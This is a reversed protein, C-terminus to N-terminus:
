VFPLLTTEGVEGFPCRVMGVLKCQESVGGTTVSVITLQSVVEPRHFLEQCIHAVNKDYSISLTRFPEQIALLQRDDIM